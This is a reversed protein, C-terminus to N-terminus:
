KKLDHDIIEVKATNSLSLEYRQMFYQKKGRFIWRRARERIELNTMDHSSVRDVAKFILYKGQTSIVDSVEGIGMSLVDKFQFYTNEPFYPTLGKRVRYVSTQPHQKVISYFDQGQKAKEHIIKCIAEAEKKHEDSVTYSLFHV